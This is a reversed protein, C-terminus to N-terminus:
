GNYAMAKSLEENLLYDKKLRDLKSMARDYADDGLLLYLPPNELHAVEIIAAAAKEPDGIQKGKKELLMKQANHMETYEPITHQAINISDENLFNTRFAGPAIVTVKVGFEAVDQALVESLGVVSFKTAAYVSWGSTGTIGAISSINIIHGSMQSRMYPMVMRIVNLTGFVNIEFSNRTERDSLEEISGGIGYGANNIVVDISKFAANTQHIACGVSDENNLEVQLPLFNPATVGVADVLAKLDRSTAAVNQGAQLLQKVLSLGFGKSAGTIFWTRIKEM